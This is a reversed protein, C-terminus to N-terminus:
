LPLDGLFHRFHSVGVCHVIERSELVDMSHGGSIPKLTSYRQQQLHPKSSEILSSQRVFHHLPVDSVSRGEGGVNPVQFIFVAIVSARKNAATRFPIALSVLTSKSTLHAAKDLSSCPANWLVFNQPLFANTDCGPSEDFSIAVMLPTKKIPLVVGSSAYVHNLFCSM